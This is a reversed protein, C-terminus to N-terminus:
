AQERCSGSGSGVEASQEIERRKPDDLLRQMKEHRKQAERAARGSREVEEPTPVEGDEMEADDNDVIPKSRAEFEDHRSTEISASVSLLQEVANITAAHNGFTSLDEAKVKRLGEWVDLPQYAADAQLSRQQEHQVSARHRQEMQRYQDEMEPLERHERESEDQIKRCKEEVTETHKRKKDLKERSAKLKRLLDFPTTERERAAGVKAEQARVVGQM